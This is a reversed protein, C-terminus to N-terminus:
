QKGSKEIPQCPCQLPKNLHRSLTSGTALVLADMSMVAPQTPTVGKKNESNFSSPALL